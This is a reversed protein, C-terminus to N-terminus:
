QVGLHPVACVLRRDPSHTGAAVMDSASPERVQESKRTGRWTEKETLDHEAIQQHGQRM